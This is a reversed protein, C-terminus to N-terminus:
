WFRFSLALFLPQSLLPPMKSNGQQSKWESSRCFPLFRISVSLFSRCPWAKLRGKRVGCGEREWESMTTALRWLLIFPASTFVNPTFLQPFRPFTALPPTAESSWSFDRSAAFCAFCHNCQCQLSIGKFIFVVLVDPM